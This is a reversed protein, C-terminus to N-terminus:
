VSYPRRAYQRRIRGLAAIYVLGAAVSACLGPEPVLRYVDDDHTVYLEGNVDEGFSTLGMSLVALQSRTWVDPSTEELAWVFGGCFDGFIYAGQLGNIATGRYVFGGIVSCADSGWGHNDYEFLPPTYSSDFCSPTLLPCDPDVPDPDHCFTGEMVKWGYNEGGTSSALQLNIEERTDQGVDTIWLNGNSGDFSFRWPNRFGKAWIEDRIGDIASGFPNGSPIGYYPAQGTNQDVDLRLVKGFFADVGLTDSDLQARCMPGNHGGGDGVGVYLYDDIPGFALPGINHGTSPQPFEILRAESGANAVNPDGASVQYRALVATFGQAGGADETYSVFFYGNSAYDPHFALNVLGGDGSDDVVLTLDLFTTPSACTLDGCVLILGEREVIFLRGDGAHTVYLPAQFTALLELNVAPLARALGADLLGLAILLIGWRM